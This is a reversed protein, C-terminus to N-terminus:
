STVHLILFLRLTQPPLPLSLSPIIFLLLRILAIAISAQVFTSDNSDWFMQLINACSMNRILACGHHRLSAGLAEKFYNAHGNNSHTTWPLCM